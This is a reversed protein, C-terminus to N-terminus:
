TVMCLGLFRHPEAVEVRDGDRCLLEQEVGVRPLYQDDIPRDMVAVPHLFHEVVIGPNKIYANM